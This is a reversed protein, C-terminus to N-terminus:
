YVRVFARQIGYLSGFRMRGRSKDYEEWNPLARIIDNIERSNYPKIYKPDENFLEVLIEMACVKDRVVTGEPEGFEDNHIFRRRAEINLEDWNEPLKRELYEEVQGFKINDEMHMQQVEMAQKELKGSLYLKEGEKYREVAEAWIQDREEKTFDKFLNRRSKGRGVTVPWFRRNGTRDRLFEADNTTGIFICQRPFRTVHKGYAVRYMDESKSIFHKVAEAEAKRTASLEAMEIIWAGQLQEYAEKGQVTNISDSYYEKGALLEVMHSKGVGQRGYMVLMYDFKCGPRFIRAVAGVLTKRTVARIYPNDEASLYDILLTDLRDIGDWTLNTLYEKIPHYKNKERVVMLADQIKNASSLGYGHEMYHRLGADDADKWPDGKKKNELKHFPLEDKIMLQRRFDNYALKGKLNTDNELILRANNITQRCLGRKDVDLSAIWDHSDNNTEVPEFDEELQKRKTEVLERKVRADDKVFDIMSKYSPQKTINKDPDKDEQGYLHLRVLDFANCLINGAPDSEHHSYAFLGDNYVVLGGFTSGEKYTYRRGEEAETYIDPLFADIAEPISYARCFAGILGTKKMPDEAKEVERKREATERSSRPWHFPDRWDLGEKEYRKLVTDGDLWDGIQSKFFYEADAATSPWYMLRHAQYTTDDFFDIGLDAAIKRCIPEYQEATIPNALPIVLRLRPKESHHKHTSYVCCTYDFLMEVATWLDGKVHDADLTLVSRWAVSGKKREGNKLSGGVFGGVDKIEDQQMKPLKLYEQYNEKTRITTSFTELLDGWTYTKTKWTKAKRSSGVAINITKNKLEEKKSINM